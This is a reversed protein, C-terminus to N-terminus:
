VSEECVNENGDFDGANRSSFEQDQSPLRQTRFSKRRYPYLTTIQGKKIFGEKCGEPSVLVFVM